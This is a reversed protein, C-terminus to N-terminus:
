RRGAAGPRVRLALAAAVLLLGVAILASAHLGSVIRAPAEGALAGFVAVGLVGGAQRAANLLASAIGSSAKDVSSLVATTMTPVGAGMGAPMLAFAPLMLLYPSRVGLLLLLAFGAADILAGIAMPPRSGARGVWWGSIANAVFFTATLPLYALGAMIPSYGLVRQLYLSLVFVAGYYTLNVIAGYAVAASFTPDRFLRLPLMPAASRAEVAVFGAAAAVGLLGAGIVLPSVLGMPKAEIAAATLGCLAIIALAQGPLDFGRERRAETEAVRLTLLAGLACIPLNVLFIARWTSAGVLLGGVIPGAAITVGGAATWWGVAKARLAADHGTAHNLLTLSCPLMAAAGLGQAARAAILVGANPALGCALSAAAFIGMGVLYVKRAGLRDGLFGASLLLAAFTLAYADVVWQLGALDTSLAKAITPLAVNVITVDLQVMAFGFSAAAVAWVITAGDSAERRM